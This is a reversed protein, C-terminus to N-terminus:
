ALLIDAPLPRMDAYAVPRPLNHKTQRVQKGDAEVRWGPNKGAHRKKNTLQRQSSRVVASVRIPREVRKIRRMLPGDALLKFSM